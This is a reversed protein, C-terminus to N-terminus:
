QIRRKMIEKALFTLVLFLSLYGILMLFEFWLSSFPAQFLILKKMVAEGLVFPNFSALVKLSPPITEIPLITNSFFLLFAAVSMSALIATEESKFIYGIFMGILIFVSSIIFLFLTTNALVALLEGKLFFFAQGFIIFLQAILIILCTIYTGLLFIFEPTPTIFNRFYAKASKERVVLTTSLLLSVFSVMLIVLTPFLNNWHSKRETLPQIQTRIPSLITEKETIKIAEIQKINDELAAKLATLKRADNTMADKIAIGKESITNKANVSASIEDDIAEIEEELDSIVNLVASDNTRNELETLRDQIDTVNFDISLSNLEDLIADAGSKTEKNSASLETISGKKDILNIRSNELTDLLVQVLEGSLESSKVAVKKAITDLIAYVLNIRSYDVHFTIANTTNGEAAKEIAMDPPFVACIHYKGYKTDQICQEESDLKTVFFQNDELATIISNTLESYSPSYVGVNINYLTSGSFAMGILLILLLPGLLIILASAKSRTILKINKQIINWLSWM